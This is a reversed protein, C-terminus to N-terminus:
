LEKAESFFQIALALKSTANYVLVAQAALAAVLLNEWRGFISNEL